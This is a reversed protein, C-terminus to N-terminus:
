VGLRKVFKVLTEAAFPKPLFHRSPIHKPPDAIYGSIYLVKIRPYEASVKQGLTIGDMRPMQVDALLADIGDRHRQLLEYAAVGDEAELVEYGQRLLIARVFGRVTPEDDAVLVTKKAAVSVPAERHLSFVV